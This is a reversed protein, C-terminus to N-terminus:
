ALRGLRVAEGERGRITDLFEAVTIMGELGGGYEGRQTQIPVVPIVSAAGMDSLTDKTLYRDLTALYKVPLRKAEDALQRWREKASTKAGLFTILETPYAADLYADISPMLFDPKSGDYLKKNCPEWRIEVLDFLAGLHYEFTKGARSFRSNKFRAALKFFEDVDVTAKNAFADNLLPQLIHREYAYYASETIKWWHVLIADPDQRPDAALGAVERAFGAFELSTPMPHGGGFREVFRDLLSAEVEVRVGLLELTAADELDLQDVDELPSIEFARTLAPRWHLGTQFLRDVGSAARTRAGAIIVTASAGDQAMAVWVFDGEYVEAMLPRVDASYVLRFEPSRHRQNERADYWTLHGDMESALIPGEDGDALRLFRCTIHRREQGLFSRLATVGNFEHQHSVGEAICEVASLRKGGVASFASRLRADM